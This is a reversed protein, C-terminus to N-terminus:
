LTNRKKFHLIRETPLAFGSFPPATYFHILPSKHQSKKVAPNEGSRPVSRPVLCGPNKKLGGGKTPNKKIAKLQGKQWGLVCVVIFFYSVVEGVM